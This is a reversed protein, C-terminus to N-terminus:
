RAGVNGAIENLYQELRTYGDVLTNADAADNPNLGRRQEWDDPLGDADDDTITTSAPAYNPRGGGCICRRRRGHISNRGDDCSKLGHWTAARQIAIRVM